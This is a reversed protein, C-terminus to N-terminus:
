HKKWFVDPFLLRKSSLVYRTRCALNTNSSTFWRSHACYCQNGTVLTGLTVEPATTQVPYHVTPMTLSLLATCLQPFKQHSVPFHLLFTTLATRSLFKPASFVLGDAADGQLAMSIVAASQSSSPCRCFVGRSLM